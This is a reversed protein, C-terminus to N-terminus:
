PSSGTHKHPKESQFGNSHLRRMRGLRSCLSVGGVYRSVRDSRATLWAATWCSAREPVQGQRPSGRPVQRATYLAFDPRGAGQDAAEPVWFVKAPPAVRCEFKGFVLHLLGEVTDIPM